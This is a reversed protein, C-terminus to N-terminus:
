RFPCLRYVFIATFCRVPSRLTELEISRQPQVDKQARIHPYHTKTVLAHKTRLFRLPLTDSMSLHEIEESITLKALTHLITFVKLVKHENKYNFFRWYIKDTPFFGCLYFDNLYIFEPPPFSRKMSNSRFNESVVHHPRIYVWVSDHKTFM